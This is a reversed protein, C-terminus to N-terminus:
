RITLGESRILWVRGKRKSDFGGFKVPWDKPAGFFDRATDASDALVRLWEEFEFDDEPM